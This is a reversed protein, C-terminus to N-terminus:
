ARFKIKPTENVSFMSQKLTHITYKVSEKIGESTDLLTGDLDFLVGKIM